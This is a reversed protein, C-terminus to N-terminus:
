LPCRAAAVQCVRRNHVAPAVVYALQLPEANLSLVVTGAEVDQPRFPPPVQGM